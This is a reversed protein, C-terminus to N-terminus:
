PHDEFISSEEQLPSGEDFVLLSIQGINLFHHMLCSDLVAATCVVVSKKAFIRDWDAKKWLDDSTGGFLPIVEEHLNSALFRAQQRALHVSNVLFFVIKPSKGQDRAITEAHLYHRILLAAILTKGSGTDLVAIINEEKARDFLEQQYERAKDIIRDSEQNKSCRAARIEEKDNSHDAVYKNLLAKNIDQDNVLASNSLQSGSGNDSETLYDDQAAAAQDHLAM